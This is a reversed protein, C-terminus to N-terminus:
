LDCPLLELWERWCVLTITRFSDVSESLCSCISLGELAHAKFEVSIRQSHLVHLDM